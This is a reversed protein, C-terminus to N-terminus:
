NKSAQLANTMRLTATGSRCPQSLPFNTYCTRSSYPCRQWATAAVKDTSQCHRTTGERSVNFLFAHAWCSEMHAWSAFASVPMALPTRHVATRGPIERLHVLFIIKGLFHSEFSISSRIEAKYQCSVWAQLKRIHLYCPQASKRM